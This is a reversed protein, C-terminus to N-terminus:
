SNANRRRKYLLLGLALPEVLYRRWLRRPQSGLRWAWELGLRGLWRPALPQAGSLQDIAGGVTAIPGWPQAAHIARAATEQTPMGLGILTLSPNFKRREAITHDLLEVSWGEGPIGRIAVHPYRESLQSVLASNSSPSAGVILVRESGNVVTEIWDTSGLRYSSTFRKDRARLLWRLPTGDILVVDAKQYFASFDADTHTLYVSHLNHGAVILPAGSKQASFIQLSLEQKTLPTVAIDLLPVRVRPAREPTTSM